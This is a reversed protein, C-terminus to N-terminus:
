LPDPDSPIALSETLFQNARPTSGAIAIGLMAM